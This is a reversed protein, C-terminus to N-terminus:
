FIKTVGECIYKMGEDTSKTWGFFNFDVNTLLKNAKGLEKM